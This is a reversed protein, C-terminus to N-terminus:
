SLLIVVIDPWLFFRPEAPTDTARSHRPKPIKKPIGASTGADPNLKRKCTPAKPQPAKKKRPNSGSVVTKPSSRVTRRGPPRGLKRKTTTASDEGSEAASATTGSGLRSKLPGKDQTATHATPASIRLTVSFREQNSDNTRPFSIRRTAPIREKEPSAHTLTPPTQSVIATQVMATAAEEIQGEEEAQRVRERRAESETPDSVNAYQTMYDRIQGMATEVAKRPIHEHSGERPSGGQHYLNTKHRTPEERSAVDNTKVVEKYTSHHNRHPERPIYPGPRFDKRHTAQRESMHRQNELEHSKTRSERDRRRRDEDRKLDRTRYAPHSEKREERRSVYKSRDGPAQHESVGRMAGFKFVPDQKSSPEDQAQTLEVSRGTRAAKEAQARKQAKAELCDKIDHDLRYCMVCHKELKEYVLTVTVEEGSSYELVSSKILPLRGNVHVRM